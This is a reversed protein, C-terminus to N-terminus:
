TKEMECHRTQIEGNRAQVDRQRSAHDANEPVGRPRRGPDAHVAEDVGHSARESQPLRSHRRRGRVGGDTSLRMHAHKRGEEAAPRPAVPARLIIYAHRRSNETTHRPAGSTSPTPTRACAGNATAVSSSGLGRHQRLPRGLARASARSTRRLVPVRVLPRSSVRALLSGSNLSSAVCVVLSVVVTM